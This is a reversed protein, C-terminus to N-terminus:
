KLNFIDVNVAKFTVCLKIVVYIVNLNMATFEYATFTSYSKYSFSPHQLVLFSFMGLMFISWM